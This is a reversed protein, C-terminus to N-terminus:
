TAGHDDLCCMNCLGLKLVAHPGVYTVKDTRLDAMQVVGLNDPFQTM